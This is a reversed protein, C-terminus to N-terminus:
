EQDSTWRRRQNAVPFYLDLGPRGVVSALSPDRFRQSASRVEQLRDTVRAAPPVGGDRGASSLFYELDLIQERDRSTRVRQQLFARLRPDALSQAMGRALLDLEGNIQQRQQRTKARAAALQRPWDSPSPQQAMASAVAPVLLGGFLLPACLTRGIIVVRRLFAM